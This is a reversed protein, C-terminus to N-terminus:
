LEISRLPGEYRVVPVANEPRSYRRGATALGGIPRHLVRGDTQLGVATYFQRAPVNDRLVEVIWWWYNTALASRAEELLRRGAGHRQHEPDVYLEFVEGAFGPDLAGDRAAGFTVYGLARGWNDEHVLIHDGEAIRYSWRTALQSPVLRDLWFQPLLGVYAQRWARVEITAM